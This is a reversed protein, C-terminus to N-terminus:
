SNIIKRIKRVQLDPNDYNNVTIIERIHNLKNEYKKIVENQRVLQEGQSRCVEGLKLNTREFLM